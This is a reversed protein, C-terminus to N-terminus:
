TDRMILHEGIYGSKEEVDERPRKQGEKGAQKHPGEHAAELVRRLQGDEEIRERRQQEEAPNRGEVGAEQDPGAHQQGEAQALSGGRARGDLVGDSLSFSASIGAM